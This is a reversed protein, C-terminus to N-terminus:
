KKGIYLDHLERAKELCRPNKKNILLPNLKPIRVITGPTIRDPHVINDRNAEYIYVWFERKGYYKQSINTLRIGESIEEEGIFVNYNRRNDFAIQFSDKEQTITKTSDIAPVISDKVAVTDAAKTETKTSQSINKEKDGGFWSKVKVIYSNALEKNEDSLLTYKVWCSFCSSTGYALYLGGSIVGLVLLLWFITKLGKRKRRKKLIFPNVVTESLDNGTNSPTVPQSYYIQSTASSQVVEEDFNSKLTNETTTKETINQIETNESSNSAAFTNEPIHEKVELVTIEDPQFIEDEKVTDTEENDTIEVTESTEPVDENAEIVHEATMEESSAQEPKEDPTIETKEDGDEDILILDYDPIEYRTSPQEARIEKKQNKASLQQIESLINKIESAQETLNRLPEPTQEIKVDVTTEETEQLTSDNLEVPELHAYPANVNEKLENDPTFTVKNYGEIVIVEGTQVNVSKRPENWQLKFTGLNKIKVADGKLLTDEIESFLSKLFEEAVRKSVSLRNAVQEVLEQSTVKDKSM